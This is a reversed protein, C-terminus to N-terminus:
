RGRRRSRHHAVLLGVLAYAMGTSGVIGASFVPVILIMAALGATADAFASAAVILGFVLVLGDAGAGIRLAVDAAPAAGLEAQPLEHVVGAVAWWVLLTGALDIAPVLVFGAMLAWEARGFGLLYLLGGIPLAAAYGLTAAAAYSQGRARYAFAVWAAGTSQAILGAVVLVAWLGTARASGSLLAAQWLKPGTFGVTTGMAAVAFSAGPLVLGAITWLAKAALLAIAASAVAERRRAVGAAKANRSPISRRIPTGCEPCRGRRTLGRLNYGCGVCALDGLPMTPMDGSREM